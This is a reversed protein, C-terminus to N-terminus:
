EFMSLMGSGYAKFLIELTISEISSRKNLSGNKRVSNLCEKLIGTMDAKNLKMKVVKKVVKDKERDIKDKMDNYKLEDDLRYAKVKTDLREILEVFGSVVISDAKKKSKNVLQIVQMTPISDAVKIGDLEEQLWDMQTDMRVYGADEWEKQITTNEKLLNALRKDTIDVNEVDINNDSAFKAKTINDLERRNAKNTLNRQKQAKTDGIYKFFYPKVRRNDDESVRLMGEKMKDLEKPVNLDQFQKKAKDIEVCSISSCKSINNYIEGRKIDDLKNNYELHNMVSNIEQSLNIDQGIYNQSITHDTDAMNVGNLEANNKGTNAIANVPIPTNTWDVRGCAEIITKNNTLLATDSDYDQGQWVTQTPYNIANTVVINNTCNIYKSIMDNEVNVLNAINGTCIHPDRFGAIVEGDAFKPCYVQNAALTVSQGTFEGVTDLLMELPNGVITAYDGETRIKGQRLEKVKGDIHNRRYDKFVQTKAFDNNIKVLETFARIVDMDRKKEIFEGYDNTEIIVDTDINAEALFFGLDDKLKEVYEVERASLEAVEQRTFPITNIKQYSLRNYKGNEFRSPKETKCIGFASNVNDKWYQLWAGAKLKEDLDRYGEMKLVEDNFKALKISNPTTILELNKVLISNGYMDDIAFTNYDLDNKNCYDIYFKSLNASFACCKFYRQRLLAMGKGILKDSILGQGDFISNSEEVMGTETVLEKNILSTESMEWNFKSDYDDIVLISNPDIDITSVISSLTLSEYARVSAIDVEGDFELGMRAWNNCKDVISDIIFLCEGERAKGSSRKWNSFKNGNFKFGDIYSWDRLQKTSMKESKKTGKVGSYKNNYKVNVIDLTYLKGDKEVVEINDLLEKNEILELSYDLKGGLLKDLYKQKIIYDGTELNEKYIWVSEINPIYVGETLKNNYM